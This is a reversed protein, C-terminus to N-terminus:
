RCFQKFTESPYNTGADSVIKKFPGYEAFILKAMQLLDDASLGAAKNVISFKSYYDVISLLTKNNVMFISAGAVEGHSTHYKM